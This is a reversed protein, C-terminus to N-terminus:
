LRLGRGPVRDLGAADGEAGGGAVAGGLGLEKLEEEAAAELEMLAGYAANLQGDWFQWERDLCFGM